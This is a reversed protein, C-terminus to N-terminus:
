VKFKMLLITPTALALVLLVLDKVAVMKSSLHNNMAQASRPWIKSAPDGNSSAKSHSAVPHPM